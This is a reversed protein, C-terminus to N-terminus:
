VGSKFRNGLRKEQKVEKYNGLMDVSYKKLEMNKYGIEKTKEEKINDIFSGDTKKVSIKSRTARIYDVYYMQGNISILDDKFLSFKFKLKSEKVSPWQDYPADNKHLYKDPLPKNSFIDVSYIPVVYNKGVNDVFVDARVMDGMEAYGGRIKITRNKSIKEKSIITEEHGAATVTHRPMRSVFVKDVAAQVDERINGWPKFKDRGFHKYWNKGKREIEKALNSVLYVHGYTSCAVVLADIAHHLDNEERNKNLGWMHRLFATVGGSRLQIRNVEKIEDRKSKSFDFYKRLYDAIHRAAYRTDNLNRSLFKEKDKDTWSKRLLNKRKPYPMEYMKKVTNEFEAWRQSNKGYTEEFWEFPIRNTKNQNAEPSCLVKNNLSDNFSRSMPIIHDIECDKIYVENSAATPYFTITKGTYPCKNLQQEALRFMLLNQGEEPDLNFERCREEAAEKDDKYRKQGQAIQNKRKESNALETAVEIHIQNILYQKQYKRVLANVLKRAQSIVRAVVPNNEFFGSYPKLIARKEYESKPFNAKEKAEQFLDGKEMNELLKELAERSYSAVQKMNIKLVADIIEKDIINHQHLYETRTEDSKCYTLSEAITDLKTINSSIHEWKEKGCKDEIAKKIKHYGKLEIFTDNEFQKVYKAESGFEVASKTYGSLDKFRFDSSLKLQKRIDSYYVYIKKSNPMLTKRNFINKIEADLVKVEGTYIDVISVKHKEEFDPRGDKINCVLKKNYEPTKESYSCLNFRIHLNDQLELETRIQAFTVKSNKYALAEIKKRQKDDDLLLHRDKDQTDVLELTNLRNFLIFREATYSEKPACLDGTFECHSMMKRLKNEDIGEEYMLIEDIYRKKLEEKTKNNGLKQQKEFIKEIEEKLLSRHISNGYKDQANRKRKNEKNTQKFEECFMQGVTEWGGDELKKRIRVLGKKVEGTESKKDEEQIEESKTHFYFGRHKAIHYLVRFLEADSLEEELAKKRIFWIDWDCEKDGKKPKLIEDRYFNNDILNFEKALKILLKLRQAKRRTTRRSRRATGRQLALSKKQRDQPIQFARVGTDIITGDTIRHKKDITGDDKEDCYEEETIKVLGWGISGVGIDLGLVVKEKNMIEGM